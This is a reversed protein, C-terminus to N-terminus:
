LTYVPYMPCVQYVSYVSYVPVSPVTSVCQTIHPSASKKGFPLTRHQRPGHAPPSVPFCASLCALLCLNLCLPGHVVIRSWCVMFRCFFLFFYINKSFLCVHTYVVVSFGPFYLVASFVFCLVQPAKVVPGQTYQTDM